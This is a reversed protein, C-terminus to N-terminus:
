TKKEAKPDLHRTQWTDLMLLAVGICITTDASNFTPWHWTNYHFDLFDVVAGHRFRDIGNGIAGGVVLGLGIQFYKTQIPNRGMWVIFAIAVAFAMVGLAIHQYAMTGSSLMSFSVGTNFALRLNFYGEIVTIPMILTNLAIEKSIVDAALAFFAVILGIKRTALPCSSKCAIPM